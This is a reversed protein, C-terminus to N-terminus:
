YLLAETIRAADRLAVHAEVARGVRKMRWSCRIVEGDNDRAVWGRLTLKLSGIVEGTANVSLVM